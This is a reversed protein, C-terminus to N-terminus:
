KGPGLYCKREGDTAGDRMSDVVAQVGAERGGHPGEGRGGKGESQGDKDVFSHVRLGDANRFVASIVLIRQLHLPMFDSQGKEKRENVWAGYVQADSLEPCASRLVRLGAIDPISEIDFVLVPWAM